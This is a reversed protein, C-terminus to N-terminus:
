VAVSVEQKAGGKKVSKWELFCAAIVAAAALSAAVRYSNTLGKMYALLVNPLQDQQNLSELVKRIDTAGSGLIAGPPVKPAFEELGSILGNQFVSQAVSIFLSGGLNQFFIVGASGIAIDDAALVTQVATMPIQFGAGAGAGTLIQYGIWKGTPIDVSYTTLLGSGVSLLTQSVILFPTYYGVATVLGGVVVSSIVTALMLPLIRIGSDTASTDKVSQFYLPLYLIILFFAGGFCVAFAFAAAVSQQKLIRPPLTAGEGLWLQSIIFLITLLGFGIFLGIIRSNNWPYESGGWQLALLLCIVAPILLSAGILDLERIRELIPKNSNEAPSGSKVVVLVVAASVAGIPLNIYFCWRWTVRDTFAGGLLPGAISSVGWVLGFLGFVMPRKALRVQCPLRNASSHVDHFGAHIKPSAQKQILAKSSPAVGCILSGVEFIFIATLYSYKIDFTKYIKGFSPQLATSTLFYASGYWGIDPISNFQDTIKPIATGIITQDLAVLFISLFLAMVIITAKWAGPYEVDEEAEAKETEGKPIDVPPNSGDETSSGNANPDQQTSLKENVSYEEMPLQSKEPDTTTAM